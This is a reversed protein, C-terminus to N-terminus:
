VCFAVEKGQYQESGTSAQAADITTLARARTTAPLHSPSREIADGSSSSPTGEKREKRKSMEKRKKGKKKGKRGEKREGKM